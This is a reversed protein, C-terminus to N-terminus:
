PGFVTQNETLGELIEVRDDGRLGLRVDVRQQVNGNEIVVFNRGSFQRIAAIPLWLVDDREDIKVTFSMRDGVAFQDPPPPTDFQVHIMEDTGTGHPAPLSAVTADYVDSPGFSRQLKATMGEALESLDDAELTHTVELNSVDAVIGVLEFAVVPDGTAISFATLRGDMPAILSTQNIRTKLDDVRQQALSVNFRLEPDVDNNFEDLALQALNREITRVNVQLVDDSTPPDSSQSVAHDLYLQALDLNLQARQQGFEAQNSTSDLISQAIALEEEAELLEAELASTDLTALLDGAQVDDGPAFFTALVRGDIQFAIGETVVPSIRGFYKKEYVIPGREVQYVPKSPVIPTPIPTPEGETIADGLTAQSQCGAILLMGLLLFVIQPM